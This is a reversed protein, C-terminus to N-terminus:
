TFEIWGTLVYKEKDLPPNGRHVHTFYAPWIVLTGTTPPVRLSQDLFETEGGEVNNLYLIWAMARDRMSLLGDNEIHWIHYGERPLTKQIKYSKITHTQLQNVMPYEKAYLSYCEDWFIKNFEEQMGQM